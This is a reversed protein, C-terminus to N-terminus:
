SAPDDGIALNELQLQSLFPCVLLHDAMFEMLAQKEGRLQEAKQELSSNTEKLAQITQVLQEEVSKRKQRFKRAAIRNQKRRREARTMEADSMQAVTPPDFSVEMEDKGLSLRRLQIVWKLEHKLLPTIQGSQYAELAASLLAPNPNPTPNLGGNLASSENNNSDRSQGLEGTECVQLAASLVAPLPDHSPSMSETSSSSSAQPILGADGKKEDNHCQTMHCINNHQHHSLFTSSLFAADTACNVNQSTTTTTTTTGATTLATKNSFSYLNDNARYQHNRINCCDTVTTDQPSVPLSSITAPITSIDNSFVDDDDDIDLDLPLRGYSCSLQSNISSDTGSLNMHSNTVPFNFITVDKLTEGNTESPTLPTIPTNPTSPNLSMDEDTSTSLKGLSANSYRRSTGPSSSSSRSCISSSSSGGARYRVPDHRCQNVIHQRRLCRTSHFAKSIAKQHQGETYVSPCPLFLNKKEVFLASCNANAYVNNNNQHPADYQFVRQANVRGSQSIDQFGFSDAPDFFAQASEPNPASIDIPPCGMSSTFVPIPEVGTPEPSSITDETLVPATVSIASNSFPAPSVFSPRESNPEMPSM